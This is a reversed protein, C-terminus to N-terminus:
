EKIRYKGREIEDRLTKEDKSTKLGVKLNHLMFVTGRREQEVIDTITFEARLPDSMAMGTNVLITGKELRGEALEDKSAIGLDSEPRKSSNLLLRSPGEKENLSKARM